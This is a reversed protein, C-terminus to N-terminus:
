SLFQMIQEVFFRSTKIDYHYRDRAWDLRIFEPICTGKIRTQVFKGQGAPAFNPIFSHIIKTSTAVSDVLDICALTNEIDQETTCNISQLRLDEDDCHPQIWPV